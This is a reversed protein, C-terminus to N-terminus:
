RSSSPRSCCVSGLLKACLAALEDRDLRVHLRESDASFRKVVDRTASDVVVLGAGGGGQERGADIRSRGRLQTTVLYFSESARQALEVEANFSLMALNISGVGRTRLRM